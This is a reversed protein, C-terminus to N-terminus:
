RRLLVYVRHKDGRYTSVAFELPEGKADFCLREFRLVPRGPSAKLLAAEEPNLLAAEISQESSVPAHGRQALLDYLSGNGLNAVEEESLLGCPIYCTEVAIPEADACRVRQIRWVLENELRLLAKVPTSPSIRIAEILQSSPALGRLRMEETFGALKGLLQESRVGRVVTGRGPTREIKGEYELTKLANRVTTRSVKLGTALDNENPLKHGPGLAGDALLKEIRERVREHLKVRAV